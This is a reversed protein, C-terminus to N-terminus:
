PDNLRDDWRADVAAFHEMGRLVDFYWRPPFSLRAFSSKVIHGTRASRYLQHDLFYAPGAAIADSAPQGGSQARYAALGELTSISTHFSAHRAGQRYRCNWGGDQMREGLLWTAMRPSRADGALEFYCAMSLLMATVCTDTSASSWLSVAGCKTVGEDLLLRCSALAEPQTPPVGLHKLLRLTYFTSTWKPSYLGGGWTGDEARLSLLRAGWGKTAVLARTPQWVQPPRDLLDRQVQWRVAPDGALLWEMTDNAASM